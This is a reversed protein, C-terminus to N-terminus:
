LVGPEPYDGGPSNGPSPSGTGSMGPTGPVPLDGTPASDGSPSPTQAAENQNEKGITPLRHQMDEYLRRALGLGGGAALTQAVQQEYLQYFETRKKRPDATNVLTQRMQQLLQSLFVGEVEACVKALKQRPNAPNKANRQSSHLSSLGTSGLPGSSLASFNASGM